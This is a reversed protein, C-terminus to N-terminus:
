HSLADVIVGVVTVFEAREEPSLASEYVFEQLVDTLKEAAARTAVLHKVDAFPPQWGFKTATEVGDGTDLFRTLIAEVPTLGSAAVALIHASGRWERLLHMLLYARAANDTPRPM